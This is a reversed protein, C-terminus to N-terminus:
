FSCEARCSDRTANELPREVCSAVNSVASLRRQCLRTQCACWRRGWEIQSHRRTGRKRGERTDANAAIIFRADDRRARVRRVFRKSGGGLQLPTFRPRKRRSVDSKRDDELLQLRRIRRRFGSWQVAHHEQRPYGVVIVSSETFQALRVFIRFIEDDLDADPSREIPAEVTTGAVSPARHIKYAASRIPDSGDGHVRRQQPVSLPSMIGVIGDIFQAYLIHHSRLFDPM